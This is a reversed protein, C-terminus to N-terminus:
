KSHTLKSNINVKGISRQAQHLCCIFLSASVPLSLYVNFYELFLDDCSLTEELSDAAM